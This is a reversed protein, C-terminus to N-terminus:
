NKHRFSGFKYATGPDRGQVRLESICLITLMEILISLIKVISNIVGTRRRGWNIANRYWISLGVHYNYERIKIILRYCYNMKDEGKSVM